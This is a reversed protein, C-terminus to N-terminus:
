VNGANSMVYLIALISVVMYVIGSVRLYSSIPTNDFKKIILLYKENVVLILYNLFILGSLFLLHQYLGNTIHLAMVNFTPFLSMVVIANFANSNDTYGISNKGFEKLTCYLLYFYSQYIRM